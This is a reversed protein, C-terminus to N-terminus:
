ADEQAAGDQHATQERLGAVTLSRLDEDTLDPDLAKAYAEWEARRADKAPRKPKEAGGGLEVPFEVNGSRVVPTGSAPDVADRRELLVQTPEPQDHTQSGRGYNTPHLLSDAPAKPDIHTSM